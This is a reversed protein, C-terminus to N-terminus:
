IDLEAYSLQCDTAPIDVYCYMFPSGLELSKIRSQQFKKGLPILILKEKQESYKEFLSFFQEEEQENNIIIAIKFYNIKLIKEVTIMKDIISFIQKTEYLESFNNWNHYSILIQCNSFTDFNNKEDLLFEFPIDIIIKKSNLINCLFPNNSDFFDTIIIKESVDIIQKIQQLSFNLKALRLEIFKYENAIKLAKEFNTASLTVIKKM